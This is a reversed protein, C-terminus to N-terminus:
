PNCRKCLRKGAKIAENRGGYKVLNEATINQAWRCDSKHFVDSNKSAIYGALLDKVESNPASNKIPNEYAGKSDATEVEAPNALQHDKIFLATM